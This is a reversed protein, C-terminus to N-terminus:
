LHVEQGSFVYAFLNYEGKGERGGTPSGPSGQVQALTSRQSAAATDSAGDGPWAYPWYGPASGGAYGLKGAFM